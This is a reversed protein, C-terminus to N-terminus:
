RTRSFVLEDWSRDGRRVAAPIREVLRFGARELLRVSRANFEHIEGLVRAAGLAEFAHAVLADVVELGFGSGWEERAGITLGLRWESAVRALQCWGICAGDSRRHIAWPFLDERGPRLWANVTAEVDEPRAPAPDDDNLDRLVPDAEWRILEPLHERTLSRLELRPTHLPAPM